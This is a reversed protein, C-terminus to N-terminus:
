IRFFGFATAVAVRPLSPERSRSTLQSHNEDVKWRLQSTPRLRFPQHVIRVFEIRAAISANLATFRDASFNPAM